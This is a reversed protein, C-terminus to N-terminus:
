RAPSRVSWAFAIQALLDIAAGRDFMWAGARSEGCPRGVHVAFGRGSVARYADEDAADGGLYVVTPESQTEEVARALLVRVLDGRRWAVDPVVVLDRDAPLVALREEVALAGVRAAVAAAEAAGAPRVRVMAGLDDVEVDAGAGQEAFRAAFATLRDVAAVAEPHRFGVGAGQIALGGAGAYVLGPVNVQAALASVSRSARVVVRTDPAAALAVLAGRVLLPLGAGRRESGGVALMGYHAILMLGGARERAEGVIDRALERADAPAM